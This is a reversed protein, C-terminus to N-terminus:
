HFTMFDFHDNTHFDRIDAKVDVDGELGLTIVNHGRDKFAQVESGYETCGSFVNLKTM